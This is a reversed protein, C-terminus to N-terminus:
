RKGQRKYVDKDARRVLEAFGPAVGLLAAAGAGPPHDDFPHYIEVKFDGQEGDAGDIAHMEAGRDAM